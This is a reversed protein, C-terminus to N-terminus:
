SLPGFSVRRDKGGGPSSMDGKAGLVAAAASGTKLSSAVPALTASARMSKNQLSFGEIGPVAGIAGGGGGGGGGETTVKSFAQVPSLPPHPQSPSIPFVPSPPPPPTCVQAESAAAGPDAGTKCLASLRDRESEVEERMKERMASVDADAFVSRTPWAAEQKGAAVAPPKWDRGGFGLQGVADGVKYGVGIASGFADEEQGGGGGGGVGGFGDAAGPPAWNMGSSSSSSGVVPTVSVSAAKKARKAGNGAAAAAAAASADAAAAKSDALKAKAKKLATKTKKLEAQVEAVRAAVAAEDASCFRKRIRAACVHEMVSGKPKSGPPLFMLEAMLKRSQITHPTRPDEEDFARLADVHGRKHMYERLLAKAVEDLQVSRPATLIAEGVDRKAKKGNGSSASAAKADSAPATAVGAM